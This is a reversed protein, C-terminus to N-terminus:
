LLKSVPRVAQEIGTIWVTSLSVQERLDGESRWVHGTVCVHRRVYM